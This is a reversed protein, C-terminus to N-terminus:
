IHVGGTDLTSNSVRNPVRNCDNIRGAQRPYALYRSLIAGSTLLGHGPVITGVELTHTFKAITELYAEAAITGLSKEIIEPSGATLGPKIKFFAVYLM